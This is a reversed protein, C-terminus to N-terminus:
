GAERGMHTPQPRASAESETAGAGDAILDLFLTQLSGDRSRDLLTVTKDDAAILGRNLIIIRDAIREVVELVHSCFLVAGGDRAHRRVLEKVTACWRADLGTLPEDLVLLMPQHLLASALMVRQRQGKSLTDIRRSSFEALEFVEVAHRIRDELSDTPVLYLEAVLALYEDGSLLGYGTANEPVLGIRAKAEISAASVDFGAVTVSGTDPELLGSLVKVTTTKGAGNPGLLGCM